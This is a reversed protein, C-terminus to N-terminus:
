LGVIEDFNGFDIARRGDPLDTFIDVFRADWRIQSYDYAHRAHVTQGFAQHHGSFVVLIEIQAAALSAGDHGALPSSDDIVHMVTWSLTFLPSRARVPVLDYFRRWTVGEPTTERQMLVLSVGAEIIEDTRRNAIRLMLTPRGGFRDVVAQASFVVGATPRIFRSYALGAVVALATMGVLAEAAVLLNPIVGRPAMKGYGITSLTQVSFFFADALSGPRANEIGDGCALFALAFLLNVALYVVAVVAFFAPWSMTLLAHGWDHLRGAPRPGVRVLASTGDSNLIRQPRAM